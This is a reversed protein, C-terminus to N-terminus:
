RRAREQKAGFRWTAPTPRRAPNWCLPQQTGRNGHRARQRQVGRRAAGAQEARILQEDDLFRRDKIVAHQLMHQIRDAMRDRVTHREM